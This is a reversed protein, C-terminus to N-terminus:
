AVKIGNYLDSLNLEIGVEPLSIVADLGKIMEYVWIEDVRRWCIVSAAETDVFLIVAISPNDKYEELKLFRDFRTTSPSLVEIVVRPEVAETSRDSDSQCDITIDPRRVNGNPNRVTIDATNPFCPGQQLKGALLYLGNVILRDHRRTAGTMARTALVPVGDVLEYNRDQEAQWVFFEDASMRPLKQAESM